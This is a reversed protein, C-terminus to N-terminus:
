IEFSLFPPLCAWSRECRRGKRPRRIQRLAEGSAPSTYSIGMGSIGPRGYLGKEFLDRLPLVFEGRCVDHCKGALGVVQSIRLFALLHHLQDVREQRDWFHAMSHHLVLDGVLACVLGDRRNASFKMLGRGEIGCRRSSRAELWHESRACRQCNFGDLSLILESVVVSDIPKYM